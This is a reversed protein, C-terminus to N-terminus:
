EGGAVVLRAALAIPWTSGCIAPLTPPPLLDVALVYDAGLDRAVAVPLNDL